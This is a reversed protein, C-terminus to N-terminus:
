YEFGSKGRRAGRTNARNEFWEEQTMGRNSVRAVTNGDDYNVLRNKIFDGKVKDIGEKVMASIIKEPFLAVAKELVLSDFDISGDEKLYKDDSPNPVYSHLYEDLIDKQDKTFKFSLDLTEEVGEDINVKIQKRVGQVKELSQKYNPRWTEEYWQNVQEQHDELSAGTQAEYEVEVETEFEPLEISEKLESLERKYTQADAKLYREGQKLKEDLQRNHRIAEDEEELTMDDTIQIKKLGIGYKTQLEDKIDSESWSPYKNRLGEAVVQEPTLSDVDLNKYKFYKELKSSHENLYDEVNLKVNSKALQKRVEEEQESTIESESEPEEELTLFGFGTDQEQEEQEQGEQEPQPDTQQQQAESQEVVEKSEENSPQAEQELANEAGEQPTVEEPREVVEGLGGTAKLFELTRSM